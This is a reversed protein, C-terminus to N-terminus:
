TWGQPMRFRVSTRWATSLREKVQRSLDLPTISNSSLLPNDDKKDM